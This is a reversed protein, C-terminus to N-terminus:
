QALKLTRQGRELVVSDQGSNSLTIAELQELQPLLEFFGLEIEAGALSHTCEFNYQARVESHQHEAGGEHEHEDADGHAAHEEASEGAEAEFGSLKAQCGYRTVFPFLATLNEKLAAQRQTYVSHEEPSGPQREFGFVSAGPAEFELSLRNNSELALNLRGHGHVHAGEAPRGGKCLTFVLTAMWLLASIKLVKYM